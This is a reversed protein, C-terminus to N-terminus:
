PTPPMPKRYASHIEVVKKAELDVFVRLRLGEVRSDPPINLEVAPFVFFEQGKSWSAEQISTVEYEKDGIRELVRPDSLAISRAEAKEEETLQRPRLQRNVRLVKEQEVDVVVYLSIGPLEEKGVHIAVIFEAPEDPESQRVEGLEYGKGSIEEKVSPDKIAIEIAKQVEATRTPTPTPTAEEGEDNGCASILPLAVLLLALLCLMVVRTKGKLM